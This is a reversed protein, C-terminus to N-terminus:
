RHIRVSTIDNYLPRPSNSRSPSKVLRQDPRENRIIEDSRTEETQGTTRANTLNDYKLPDVTVNVIPVNSVIVLSERTPM